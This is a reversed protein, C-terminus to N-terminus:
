GDNDEVSRAVSPAHTRILEVIRDCKRIIRQEQVYLLGGSAMGGCLGFAVVSLDAVTAVLAGGGFLLTLWYHNDRRKVAAYRIELADLLQEHLGRRQGM